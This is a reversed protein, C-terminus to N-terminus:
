QKYVPLLDRKLFSIQHISPKLTLYKLFHSSTCLRVLTCSALCTRTTANEIEWNIATFTPKMKKQQTM